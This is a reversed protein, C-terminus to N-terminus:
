HVVEHKESLLYEISVRHERFEEMLAHYSEMTSAYMRVLTSVGIELSAVRRRLHDENGDETHEGYEESLTSMKKRRKEEPLQM